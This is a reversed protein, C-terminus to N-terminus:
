FGLRLLRLVLAPFLGCALSIAPVIWDLIRSPRAHPPPPKAEKNLLPALQLGLVLGAALLGLALNAELGAVVTLARGAFAVAPPWGTAALSQLFGGFGAGAAMQHRSAPQVIALDVLLLVAALVGLRPAAIATLLLAVSLGNRIWERHSKGAGELPTTVAMVTLLVAGGAAVLQFHSLSGQPLRTLAAILYVTVLPLLLAGSRPRRLAATLLLWGTALSVPLVRIALTEPLSGGFAASLAFLSVGAWAFRHLPRDTGLLIAAVTALAAWGVAVSTSALSLAAVLVVANRPEPELVAAAAFLLFLGVPVVGDLRLGLDAVGLTSVGGAVALGLAVLALAGYGAAARPSATASVTRVERRRLAPLLALSGVAAATVLGASSLPLLVAGGGAVALVRGRIGEATDRPVVIWALGLAGLSLLVAHVPWPTDGAQLKTAGWSAAGVLVIATAFRVVLAEFAMRPRQPQGILLLCGVVPGIAWAITLPGAIGGLAGAAAALMLLVGPLETSGQRLLTVLMGAAFLSVLLAVVWASM